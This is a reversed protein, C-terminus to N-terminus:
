SCYSAIKYSEGDDSVKILVGSLATQSAYGSWNKFPEKNYIMIFDGLSYYNGEYKLFQGNDLEEQNMYDMDDKASQPLDHGSLFPLDHYNSIIKVGM